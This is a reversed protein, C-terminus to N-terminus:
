CGVPVLWGSAIVAALTRPLDKTPKGPPDRSTYPAQVGARLGNGGGTRPVSVQPPLLEKTYAGTESAAKTEPYIHM